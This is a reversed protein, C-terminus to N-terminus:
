APSLKALWALQKLADHVAAAWPWDPDLDIIRQRATTVYRAATAFLKVRLTKPSAVRWTGTLALTQAWTTLDM